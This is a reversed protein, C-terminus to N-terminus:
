GRRLGVVDWVLQDGIGKLSETRPSGPKYEFRDGVAEHTGASICPTGPVARGELRAGLNCTTGIAEFDIKDYTGVNGLVVEGTAVGIRVGFPPLGLLERPENFEALARTMELASTVGRVAHDTDRFIAMFGDGRFSSRGEYRRLVAYLDSMMQNLTMLVVEPDRGKAFESSGKLDLFLVTVSERVARSLSTTDPTGHRGRVRRFVHLLHAERSVARLENEAERVLHDRRCSEALQLADILTQRVLPAAEGAAALTRAEELRTRAVEVVERVGEFHRKAALLARM